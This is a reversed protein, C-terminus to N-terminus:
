CLGVLYFVWTPFFSINCCVHRGPGTAMIALKSNGHLFVCVETACGCSVAYVSISKEACAICTSGISAVNIEESWETWQQQHFSMWRQSRFYCRIQNAPTCWHPPAERPFNEWMFWRVCQPGFPTYNRNLPWPQCIQVRSLCLSEEKPYSRETFGLSDTFCNTSYEHLQPLQNRM